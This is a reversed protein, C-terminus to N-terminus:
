TSPTTTRRMAPHPDAVRGGVLGRLAAIALGRNTEAGIDPRRVVYRRLLDSLRYRGPRREDLLSVECLADLLPEIEELPAGVLAAVLHGTLDSRPASALTRLLRQAPPRLTSYSRDLAEWMAALPDGAPQRGRIRTVLAPVTYRTNVVLPAAALRLALPLCGCLQALEVIARPDDDAPETDAAGARALIRRILAVAEEESLPRLAVSGAGQLAALDSLRARSTVVVACGTGGPLLPRIQEASSADDLMILIRRGALTSRYLAAVADVDGDVPGAEAGLSRLVRKLADAPTLPSGGAHSRLDVFLQGDPFRAAARHAWRVALASKGVGALGWITVIPVVGAAGEAGELLRNLRTLEERRGIFGAVAAPLEAPPRAEATASPAGRVGTVVLRDPSAREDREPEAVGLLVRQQLRRLRAGPEVGLEAILRHRAQQYVELAGAQEGSLYLALMLLETLRERFPHEAVLAHLEGAVEGAEGLRLRADSRQEIIRLRLGELRVREAELIAGVPLGALPTGRWMRLAQESSEVVDALAGRRAAEGIRHALKEFAVLDLEEPHVSLRYGDPVTALRPRAGAPERLVRRLAALYTRVNSDVSAPPVRWAAAVIDSVGVVKNARFALAALVARRRAGGVALAMEGVRVELPGLLRFEVIGGPTGGFLRSSCRVRM